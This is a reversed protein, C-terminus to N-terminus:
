KEGWLKVLGKESDTAEDVKGFAGSSLVTAPATYARVVMSDSGRVCADRDEMLGTHASSLAVHM